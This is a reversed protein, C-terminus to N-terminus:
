CDPASRADVTVLQRTHFSNERARRLGTRLLAAYRQAVDAAFDDDTQSM